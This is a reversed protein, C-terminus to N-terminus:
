GENLWKPRYMLIATDQHKSGPKAFVSDPQCIGSASQTSCFKETTPGKYKNAYDTSSTFIVKGTGPKGDDIKNDLAQLAFSKVYNHFPKSASPYTKGATDNRIGRLLISNGPSYLDTITVINDSNDLKKDGVLILNNIEDIYFGSSQKREPLVIAEHSMFIGTATNSNDPLLGALVMHCTSLDTATAKNNSSENKSWIYGIGLGQIDAQTPDSATSAANQNQASQPNNSTSTTIKKCRSKIEDALWINSHPFDGPLFSHTEKFVFIAKEYESIKTILSRVQAARVLQSGVAVITGLIGIIVVVVMLEILTVGKKKKHLIRIM